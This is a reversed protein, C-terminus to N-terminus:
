LHRWLIDDKVANSLYYPEAHQLQYIVILILAGSGRGNQSLISAFRKHDSTKGTM